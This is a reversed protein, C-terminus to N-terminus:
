QQISSGDILVYIITGNICRMETCNTRWVSACCCRVDSYRKLRNVCLIFAGNIFKNKTIQWVSTCVAKTLRKWRNIRLIFIGDRLLTALRLPDLCALKASLAAGSHFGPTFLLAGQLALHTCEDTRERGVRKM